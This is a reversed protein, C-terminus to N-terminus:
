GRKAPSTIKKYLSFLALGPPNDLCWAAFIKPKLMPRFPQGPILMAAYGRCERVFAGVTTKRLKKDTKLLRHSLSECFYLLMKKAHQELAASIKEDKAKLGALFLMYRGFAEKYAEGNTMKSVSNHIRYSFAESAATAKYHRYTLKVWLEYDAFILNPYLASIGGLEDYDSSRMMYGTGMSDITDELQCAIFEHAYQKEAMPKCSRIYAGTSDIFKFHSQYLSAGPHKAILDSMTQLYDPHLIDDHGILTIFENKKIDKVRAWNDVMSLDTASRHIIIRPDNCSEIWKVTDDTSCNDLVILNFEPLTQSLISNVCEQVYAGGNRVPLIISFRSL